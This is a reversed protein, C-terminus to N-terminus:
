CWLFIDPVVSDNFWRVMGQRLFIDLVGSVNHTTNSTMVYVEVYLLTYWQTVLYINRVLSELLADDEQLVLCIRLIRRKIWYETLEWRIVEVICCAMLLFLLVKQPSFM